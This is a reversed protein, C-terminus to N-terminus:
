TCLKLFKAILFAVVFCSFTATNLFRSSAIASCLHLPFCIEHLLYISIDIFIVYWQSSLSLFLLSLLDTLSRPASPSLSLTCSLYMSIYKFNISFLMPGFVCVRVVCLMCLILNQAYMFNKKSSPFCNNNYICLSLQQQTATSTTTTSIAENLANVYIIWLWVCM